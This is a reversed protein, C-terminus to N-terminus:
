FRADAQDPPTAHSLRLKGMGGKLEVAHFGSPICRLEAPKM